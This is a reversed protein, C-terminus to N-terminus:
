TTLEFKTYRIHESKSNDGIQEIDHIGRNSLDLVYDVLHM